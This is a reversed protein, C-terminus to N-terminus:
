RPKHPAKYPKKRRKKRRYLAVAGALVLLAGLLALGAAWIPLGDAKLAADPPPKSTASLPASSAAGKEAFPEAADAGSQAPPPPATSLLAPDINELFDNKQMDPGVTSRYLGFQRCDYPGFDEVAFYNQQSRHELFGQKAMELASAGGFAELPQSWDMTLTNQPWLHLYTKPPDWVGYLAASEPYSAGDGALEVAEMLTDANLRHVGHGYEGEVDHGVVVLPKFRRLTETQWALVAERDYLGLAAELSDAYLDPFPSILPYSRVGVAWLGNLLEHPRYPEGWHSTLYAVQVALGQQGAYTPLTGGFFLHEDDAHTPLVLLDAKELPPSWVQVFAPPSGEAFLYIDCLTAEGETLNLSLTKAPTPLLTYDHLFGDPGKQTTVGDTQLTYAPPPSDWILYLQTFPTDASITLTNGAALLQTTGRNQDSLSPLAAGGYGVSYAEAELQPAEGLVSATGAHLPLPFLALCVLLLAAACGPQARRWKKM